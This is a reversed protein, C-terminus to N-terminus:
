NLTFSVEITAKFEMQGAAFGNISAPNGSESFDNAYANKGAGWSNANVERIDVAHGISQGLEKSLMVAKEKAAVIAKKRAEDKHKRMETSRYYPGNISTVGAKLLGSLIDEYTSLKKICVNFSQRAEFKGLGDRNQRYRDGIHMYQTQIHREEVGAGKLYAIVAASQIRNEERVKEIDDDYTNVSFSVLVEDPVAYVTAIGQTTITALSRVDQANVSSFMLLFLPLLTKM